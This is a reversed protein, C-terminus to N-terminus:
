CRPQPRACARWLGATASLVDYKALRTGDDAVRNTLVHVNADDESAGQGILQLREQVRRHWRARAVRQQYARSRSCDVLPRRASDCVCWARSAPWSM